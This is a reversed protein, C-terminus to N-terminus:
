RRPRLQQPLPDAPLRRTPPERPPRPTTLGMVGTGMALSGFTVAFGFALLSVVLWASDSGVILSRLGAVDLWLLLGLVTWGALVGVLLHALLFPLLGPKM